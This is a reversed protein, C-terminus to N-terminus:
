RGGKRRVPRAKPEAPAELHGHEVLWATLLRVAMNSMSRQEAESAKRLAHKVDSPLRVVMM